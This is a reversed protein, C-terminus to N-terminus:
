CRYEALPPQPWMQGKWGCRHCCECESVLQVGSRSSTGRYTWWGEWPAKEQTGLSTM